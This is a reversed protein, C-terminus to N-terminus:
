INIKIQIRANKIKTDCTVIGFSFFYGGSNDRIELRETQDRKRANVEDASM